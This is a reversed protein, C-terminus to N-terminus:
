ACKRVYGSCMCAESQVAYSAALKSVVSTVPGRVMIFMASRRCSSWSAGWIALRVICICFQDYQAETLEFVHTYRQRYSTEAQLPM